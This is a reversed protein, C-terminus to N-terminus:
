WKKGGQALRAANTHDLRHKNYTRKEQIAAWLAYNRTGCYDCVLMVFWALASEIDRAPAGADELEAVRCIAQIMHLLQSAVNGNALFFRGRFFHPLLHLHLTSPHLTTYQRLLPTDIDYKHAGIYDLMRIMADAMEVEAMKRHPLHDDMLSKREGEGAEVIESIVLFLTQRKDRDIRKGNSPDTWWHANEAHVEAALTSFYNIV